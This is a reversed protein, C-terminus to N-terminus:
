NGPNPVGPNRKFYRNNPKKSVVNGEVVFNTVQRIDTPQPKGRALCINFITNTFFDTYFANFANQVNNRRSLSLRAEPFAGNVDDERLTGRYINRGDRGYTVNKRVLMCLSAPVPEVSVPYDGYVGVPLSIFSTPNYPQGDPVYSSIVVRDIYCFSLHITKELNAFKNAIEYWFAEGTNNQDNVAVIEYTNAWRFLNYTKYVRVTFVEGATVNQLPM